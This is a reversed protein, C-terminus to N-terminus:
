WLQQETDKDVASFPDDLIMLPTKHLLTRAFAIRAQQGGSLRVGNNGIEEQLGGPMDLVEKRICAKDLYEEVVAEDGLLVNQEISDSLLEPQHGM